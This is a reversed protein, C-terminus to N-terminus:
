RDIWRDILIERKGQEVKERAAKRVFADPMVEWRDTPGGAGLATGDISIPNAPGWFSFFLFFFSYFSLSFISISRHYIMSYM